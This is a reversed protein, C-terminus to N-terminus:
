EIITQELTDIMKNDTVYVDVNDNWDFETKHNIITKSALDSNPYIVEERTDVKSFTTKWVGITVVELMNDDIICLDGVDFPHVLYVFVIGQFFTKSTDGFMIIFTAIPSGIVILAETTTLGTLLLWLITTGVILLAVMVRDLCEVLEKTSSLTNAVFLCNKRAKEQVFLCM